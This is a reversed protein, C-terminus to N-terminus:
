KGVRDKDDELNDNDWFTVALAMAQWLDDKLGKLVGKPRQRPLLGPEFRDKLAQIINGDKARSNHCLHMKVDMRPVREFRGGKAFWNECFRGTWFITDLISDSVVMGYCKIQEIALRDAINKLRDFASLVFSNALIEKEIIEEGDWLVYASIEPGPDIALVKM